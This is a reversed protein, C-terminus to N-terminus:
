RLPAYLMGTLLLAKRMVSFRHPVFSQRVGTQLKSHAIRRAFHSRVRPEIPGESVGAEESSFFKSSVTRRMSSSVSNATGTSGEKDPGLGPEPCISIAVLSLAFSRCNAQATTLNHASVKLPACTKSITLTIPELKSPYASKISFGLSLVVGKPRIAGSAPMTQLAKYVRSLHHTPKPSQSPIKPIPTVKPREVLSEPNLVWVHIRMRHQPYALSTYNMHYVQLRTNPKTSQYDRRHRDHVHLLAISLLRRM